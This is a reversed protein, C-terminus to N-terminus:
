FAGGGWGQAVSNKVVVMSLFHQMSSRRSLFSFDGEGKDM